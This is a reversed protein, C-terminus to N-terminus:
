QLSRLRDQIMGEWQTGSSLLLLKELVAKESPSNVKILEFKPNFFSGAKEYKYSGMYYLGTKKIVVATDNKGYEPIDYHYSGKFWHSGGFAVLQYSGLPLKEHWFLGTGDSGSPWYPKKTKPKVQKITAYGLKTPADEMDIYGYVLSRMDDPPNHLRVGCGAVFGVSVIVTLLVLLKKM